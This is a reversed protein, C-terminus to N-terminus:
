ILTEIIIGIILTVFMVAYAVGMIYYSDEVQKLSRGQRYDKDEQTMQRM